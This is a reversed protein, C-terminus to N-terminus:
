RRGGPTGLSELLPLAAMLALVLLGATWAAPGLVAGILDTM